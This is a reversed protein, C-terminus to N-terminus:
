KGFHTIQPIQVKFNELVHHFTSSKSLDCAKAVENPIMLSSM